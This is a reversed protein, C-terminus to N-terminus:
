KAGKPKQETNPVIPQSESRKMKWGQPTKIWEDMTFMTVAFTSPLGQKPQSTKGSETMLTQVNAKDKNLAFKKVQVSVKLDTMANLGQVMEQEYQKRTVNQGMFKLMFDSTFHNLFAKYQRGTLQKAMQQYQASIGAKVKAADQAQATAGIILLGLCILFKQRM